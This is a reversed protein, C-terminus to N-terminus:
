GREAQTVEAASALDRLVGTMEVASTFDIGAEPNAPLDERGERIVLMGGVLRELERTLLKVVAASEPSGLDIGAATFVRVWHQRAQEQLEADAADPVGNSATTTAKMSRRSALSVVSALRSEGSDPQNAATAPM